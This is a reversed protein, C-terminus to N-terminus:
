QEVCIDSLNPLLFLFYGFFSSGFTRYFRLTVTLSKVVPMPTTLRPLVYYGAEDFELNANGAKDFGLMRRTPMSGLVSLSENKQFDVRAMYKGFLCFCRPRDEEKEYPYNRDLHLASKRHFRDGASGASLELRMTPTEGDWKSLIKSLMVTTHALTDCDLDHVSADEDSDFEDIKYPELVMNVHLFRICDLRRGIPSEPGTLKRSLCYDFDRLEDSFVMLSRFTKLEFFEQWLKCTAACSSLIRQPRPPETDPPALIKATM